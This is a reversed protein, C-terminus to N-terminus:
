RCKGYRNHFYFDKTVLSLTWIRDDNSLIRQPLVRCAIGEETLKQVLPTKLGIEQLTFHASLESIHDEMIKRAADTKEEPVIVTFYANEDESKTEVIELYISVITDM